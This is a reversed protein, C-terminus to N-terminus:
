AEEEIFDTMLYEDTHCTPCAKFYEGDEHLLVLEDEEFVVYCMNCRVQPEEM